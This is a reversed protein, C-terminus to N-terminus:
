TVRTTGINYYYVKEARIKGFTVEMTCAKWILLNGLYSYNLTGKETASFLCIGTRLSNETLKKRTQM